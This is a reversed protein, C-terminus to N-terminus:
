LLPAMEAGTSSQALPAMRTSFLALVFRKGRDTAGIVPDRLASTKQENPLGALARDPNVLSARVDFVQRKKM